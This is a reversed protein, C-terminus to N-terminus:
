TSWATRARWPCWPARRLTVRRRAPSRAAWASARGSTWPARKGTARCPSPRSTPCISPPLCIACEGADLLPQVGINRLAACCLVPVLENKLTGVRVARRLILEPIEKEEVFLSLVEDDFQSAQDVLHERAAEAQESSSTPSRRCRTPPASIRRTGCSPGKM